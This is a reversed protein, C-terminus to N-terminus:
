DRVAAATTVATWDRGASGVGLAPRASRPPTCCRKCFISMLPYIHVYISLSISMAHLGSRKRYRRLDESENGFDIFELSRPPSQRRQVWLPQGYQLPDGRDFADTRRGANLPCLQGISFHFLQETAQFPLVEDRAVFLLNCTISLHHIRYEIGIGVYRHRLVVDLLQVRHKQTM